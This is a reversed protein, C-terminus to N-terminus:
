NAMNIGASIEMQAFAGDQTGSERGGLLLYPSLKTIVGALSLGLLTVLSHCHTSGVRLLTSVSSVGVELTGCVLGHQDSIDVTCPYGPLMMREDTAELVLRVGSVPRQTRRDMLRATFMVPFLIRGLMLHFLYYILYLLDKLRNVDMREPRAPAYSRRWLM